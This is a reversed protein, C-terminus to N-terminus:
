QGNGKLAARIRQCKACECTEYTGPANELLLEALDKTRKEAADLKAQMKRGADLALASDIKSIWDREWAARQEESDFWCDNASDNAYDVIVRRYSELLPRMAACSAQLEATATAIAAAQDEAAAEAIRELPAISLAERCGEILADLEENTVAALGDDVGNKRESLRDLDAPTLTSM